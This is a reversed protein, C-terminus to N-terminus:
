EEMLEIERQAQELLEAARIFAAAIHRTTQKNHTRTTAAARQWGWARRRLEKAGRLLAEHWIKPRSTGRVTPLAVEGAHAAEVGQDTLAYYFRPRSGGQPLPVWQERRTLMGERHLKLLAQSVNGPRLALRVAMESAWSEGHLLARLIEVARKPNKQTRDPKM